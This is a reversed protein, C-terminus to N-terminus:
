NLSGPDGAVASVTAAVVPPEVTAVAPKVTVPVFPELSDMGMNDMLKKLRVRQLEYMKNNRKHVIGIKELQKIAELHEEPVANVEITGKETLWGITQSLSGLLKRLPQEYYASM